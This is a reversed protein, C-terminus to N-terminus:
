APLYPSWGDDPLFIGTSDGGKFMYKAVYYSAGVADSGLPSIRARGYHDHWVRWATRHIAQQGSLLARAPARDRSWGLHSLAHVHMRTSSRGGEVVAFFRSEVGVRSLRRRHARLCGLCSRASPRPEKFTLTEFHTWPFRALWEAWERTLNWPSFAESTALV